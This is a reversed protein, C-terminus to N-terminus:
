LVVVGTATARRAAVATSRPGCSWTASHVASSWRRRSVIRSASGPTGITLGPPPQDSSISVCAIPTAGASAERASSACPTAAVGIVPQPASTAARWM